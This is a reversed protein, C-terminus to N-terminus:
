HWSCRIGAAGMADKSCYAWVNGCRCGGTAMQTRQYLSIEGRELNVRRESITAATSGRIAVLAKIAVERHSDAFRTLIMLICVGPM